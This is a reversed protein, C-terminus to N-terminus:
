GKVANATVGKIIQKSFALYALIIPISASVLAAMLFTYELEGRGTSFSTLAVPITKLAPNNILVAGFAFENWTALLTLISLTSIIPKCLPFIMIIIRKFLSCGDISAAEEIEKPIGKIFSESLFIAVPSAMSFYPLLLTYRSNLLNLTKFQIFIPVLLAYLPILFGLIYIFRIIVKGKFEYRSFFYGIIVSSFIVLVLTLLSTFISNFIATFLDGIEFAKIYNQLHIAKPLGLTDLQFESREKFSSYLLWILPFLCTLSIIMMIGNTLVKIFNSLVKKATENLKM